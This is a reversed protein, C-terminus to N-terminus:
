TASASTRSRTPPRDGARRPPRAPPPTVPPPGGEEDAQSRGQPPAAQSWRSPSRDRRRIPVDRRHGGDRAHRCSLRAGRRVRAVVDPGADGRTHSGARLTPKMRRVGGQHGERGDGGAEVCGLEHPARLWAILHTRGHRAGAHRSHRLATQQHRDVGHRGAWEPRSPIKAKAHTPDADWFLDPNYNFTPNRVVATVTWSGIPLPDHESGSTVPAHM